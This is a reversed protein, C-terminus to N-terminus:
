GFCRCSILNAMGSRLRDKAALAADRAIEDEAWSAGAFNWTMLSSYRLLSRFDDLLTTSLQDADFGLTVEAIVAAAARDLPADVSVPVSDANALLRTAAQGFFRSAAGVLQDQDTAVIFPQSLGHLMKWREGDSTLRSEGFFNTFPGFNKDYLEPRTRLVHRVTPADQVVLVTEAEGVSVRAVQGPARKALEYLTGCPNSRWVAAAAGARVDLSIM